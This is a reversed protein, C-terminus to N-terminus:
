KSFPGSLALSETLGTLFRVDADGLDPRAERALCCLVYQRADASTLPVGLYARVGAARLVALDALVPDQELDPVLPAIRGELLHRCITDELPLSAGPALGPFAEDGVAWRVTERGVGIESILVTDVGLETRALQMTRHVAGAPDGATLPAHRDRGLLPEGCEPCEGRSVLYTSIGCASCTVYPM